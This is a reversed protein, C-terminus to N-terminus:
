QVSGDMLGPNDHVNGIVEATAYRNDIIGLGLRVDGCSMFFCAWKDDWGVELTSRNSTLFFVVVDGEFIRKGDKDTLGTYQGVTAPDVKYSDCECPETPEIFHCESENWKKVSSYYGEM